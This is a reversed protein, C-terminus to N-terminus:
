WLRGKKRQWGTIVLWTTPEVTAEIVLTLRRGGNSEGFLFWRECGEPARHNEGLDYDNELVQLAEGASIGRRGLKECPRYPIKLELVDPPV